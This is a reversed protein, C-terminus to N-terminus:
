IKDSLHLILTIHQIATFIDSKTESLSNHSMKIVTTMRYYDNLQKKCFHLWVQNVWNIIAWKLLQLWETIIM